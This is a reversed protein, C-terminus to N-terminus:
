LTVEPPIGLKRCLNAFASRVKEHHRRSQEEAGRLSEETVRTRVNTTHKSNVIHIQDDFGLVDEHLLLFSHAFGNRHEATDKIAAGLATILLMTPPDVGRSQAVRRVLSIRGHVADLTYFIARSIERRCGVLHHFIEFLCSDALAANHAILGHTMRAKNALATPGVEM